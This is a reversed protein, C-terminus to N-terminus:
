RSNNKKKATTYEEDSILQAEFMKNLLALKDLLGATNNTNDTLTQALSQGNSLYLM